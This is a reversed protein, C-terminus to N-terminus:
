GGTLGKEMPSPVKNIVAFFFIIFLFFSFLFSFFIQPSSKRRKKKEKRKRWTKNKKKLEFMCIDATILLAGDEISFPNAEPTSPDCYYEMEDNGPETRGM